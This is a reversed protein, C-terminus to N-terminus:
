FDGALFARDKLIIEWVKSNFQDRFEQRRGEYENTLNIVQPDHGTKQKVHEKTVQQSVDSLRVPDFAVGFHECVKPFEDALNGKLREFRIVTKKRTFTETHLWKNLHQAYLETWSKIAALDNIDEQHYTLQSFVTDVPDRYLYIVIPRVIKLDLDHTHLSM